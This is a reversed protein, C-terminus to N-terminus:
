SWLCWGVCWGGGGAGVARRGDGGAAMAALRRGGGAPGVALSGLMAGASPGDPAPGSGARGGSDSRPVVIATETRRSAIATAAAAVSTDNTPHPLP